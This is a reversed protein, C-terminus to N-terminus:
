SNNYNFMNNICSLAGRQDEPDISIIQSPLTNKLANRILELSNSKMYRCMMCSGVLNLGPNEVQLRSTIGCETLILFPNPEAKHEKVYNVIQSTSGVVDAEKIVSQTCEPHALVSLNPHSQRLLHVEDATFEEHVYCSGDYLKIDKISGLANQVNEGMLKDPLFYIKNNPINEIIKYVNSSTVCVDCAAKVAATTNIYCVFTHDPYKERLAYVDDATISDALSCGGNPNPDIVMKKPNLIKATEAMFRVAPFVIVKETAEKAKLALGYSDGVHDAVTYLIDPHVYSHALVLANKEQKLAEIEEVLPILRECRELTYNCLPNDVKINKLKDYLSEALM